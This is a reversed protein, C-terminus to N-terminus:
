SNASFGMRSTRLAGLKLPGNISGFRAEAFLKDAGMFDEPPNLSEKSSLDFALRTCILPRNETVESFTSRPFSIGSHVTGRRDDCSEGSFFDALTQPSQINSEFCIGIPRGGLSIHLLLTGADSIM